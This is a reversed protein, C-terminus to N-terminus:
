DLSISHLTCRYHRVLLGGSVRTVKGLLGDDTYTDSQFTTGLLTTYTEYQDRM